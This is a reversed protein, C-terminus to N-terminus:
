PTEQNTPEPSVPAAVTAFADRVMAEVEDLRRAQTFITQGDFDITRKM